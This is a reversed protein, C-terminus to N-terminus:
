DALKLPKGNLISIAVIQKFCMFEIEDASVYLGIDKAEQAM